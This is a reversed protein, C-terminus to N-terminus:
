AQDDYQRVFLYLQDEFRLLIHEVLDLHPDFIGRVPILGLEDFAQYDPQDFMLLPKFVTTTPLEHVRIRAINGLRDSAAIGDLDAIYEEIDRERVFYGSDGMAMPIDLASLSEFYWHGNAVTLPAFDPLSTVARYWSTAEERSYRDDLVGRFIDILLRRSPPQVLLM